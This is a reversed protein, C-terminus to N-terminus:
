GYRTVLYPEEYSCKTELFAYGFRDCSSVRTRFIAIAPGMEVRDVLGSRHFALDEVLQVLVQLPKTYTSSGIRTLLRPDVAHSFVKEYLVM